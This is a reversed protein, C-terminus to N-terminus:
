SSARTQDSRSRRWGRGVSKTHLGCKCPNPAGVRARSGRDGEHARADLRLLLRRREPLRGARVRAPAEVDGRPDRRLRRLREAPRREPPVLHPLDRRAVPGRRVAADGERRPLLQRRRDISGCARDVGLVSRDDAGDAHSWLSRRDHRQDLAAAAARGRARRPDRGQLQAPRLDDRDAAPRRRRRRPRSDARQLGRGGPRVHAHSVGARRRAPQALAHHEVARGLGRRVPRRRGRARAPRRRREHRLGGGRARLGGTRDVDRHVHEDDRHGGRGRLVVRAGEARRGAAHHEASRPQQASRSPPGRLARRPLGGRVPREVPPPRGM